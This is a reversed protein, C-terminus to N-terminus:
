FTEEHIHVLLLINGNLINFEGIIHNINNNIHEIIRIIVTCYYYLM